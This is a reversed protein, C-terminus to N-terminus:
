IDDHLVHKHQQETKTAIAQHSSCFFTCGGTDMRIQKHHIETAAAAAATSEKEGLLSQQLLVRVLEHVRCAEDVM